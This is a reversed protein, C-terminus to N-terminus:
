ADVKLQICKACMEENCEDHQIEAAERVVQSQVFREEALAQVAAAAAPEM